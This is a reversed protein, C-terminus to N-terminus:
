KKSKKTMFLTTIAALIILTGTILFIWVSNTKVEEMYFIKSERKGLELVAEGNSIQLKEEPNMANVLLKKSKAAEESLVLKQSVFENSVNFAVLSTKGNYSRSYILCSDDSQLVEIDGHTFEPNSKRLETLKRLYDRVESDKTWDMSKRNEPDAYGEMAIETGYYLIPIGTYTMQFTLAQKLKAEKDSVASSAFRMVDHNDIFTGMLYKNKYIGSTKIATKLISTNKSKAFVDNIASYTPFDTIGDIGAKQYNSIYTQDYHWVEGLLYFDPYDKKIEESFHEWFDVPVHRVTDLRFGDIGTEKIWWKAMDVLYKKVEPNEQALDPLGALDGNEVEKQNNWQSITGYHHFWDEYEKSFVWPHKYGTHNVVLDLIVKMDMEHAKSVLEKLKNMDGLSKDVSYFDNAWYGHYGGPDNSVVPTIWIATSGLSKIYELKNIIGQLDGGHRAKLDYPNTGYDNSKDGNEFRDTMIFYIVDAQNISKTNEGDGETFCISSFVVLAIIIIILLATRM